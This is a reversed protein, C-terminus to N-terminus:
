WLACKELSTFVALSSLSAPTADGVSVFKLTSDPSVLAGLVAEVLLNGCESRFTQLSRKNQQLWVLLSSLSGVPVDNRLYLAQVLGSHRAYVERFQKCVLKLQHVETQVRQLLQATSDEVPGTVWPRPEVYAFVKAWLEPTLSASPRHEPQDMAAVPACFLCQAPAM